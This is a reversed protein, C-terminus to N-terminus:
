RFPDVIILSVSLYQEYKAINDATSVVKYIARVQPCQTNHLWKKRLQKAVSLMGDTEEDFELPIERLQSVTKTGGM